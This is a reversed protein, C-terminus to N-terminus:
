RQISENSQSQLKAVFAQISPSTGDLEAARLAAQRAGALDGVALKAEALHLLIEPNHPDREACVLFCEAAEEHRGLAHMAMGRLLSIRVPCTSVDVNDQLRDLTALLRDYRGHRYYVDAIAAQVEPFDPQLVLARHYAALAAEDSGRAALCDGQLSWAEPLLRGSVLCEDAQQQAEEIRGQEFYMRGLRVVLQPENGSLRVAQEMHDVATIREGRHWLTEAMGWHARDDTRNLELAALFREEASEWRGEHIAELGERSLKRGAIGQRNDVHRRIARCGGSFPPALASVALAAILWGVRIRYRTM